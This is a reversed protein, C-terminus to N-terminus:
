FEGLATLAFVLGFAMKFAVNDRILSRVDVGKVLRQVREKPVLNIWGKSSAYQVVVIGVGLLLTLTRSFASVM